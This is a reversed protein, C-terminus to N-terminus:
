RGPCLENKMARGNLTTSTSAATSSVPGSDQGASALDERGAVTVQPEKDSMVAFVWVKGRQGHDLLVECGNGAPPLPSSRLCVPGSPGAHHLMVIRGEPLVRCPIAYPLPYQVQPRVLVAWFVSMVILLLLIVLAHRSPVFLSQFSM